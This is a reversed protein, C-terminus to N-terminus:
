ITIEFTKNLDFIIAENYDENHDLNKYIQELIEASKECEPFDQYRNSGINRHPKYCGGGLIVVGTNLKLCFIRLRSKSKISVSTETSKPPLAVLAKREKGDGEHRLVDAGHREKIDNILQGFEQIDNKYKSYKEEMFSDTINKEVEGADNVFAISYFFTKRGSTYEVIKIKRKM